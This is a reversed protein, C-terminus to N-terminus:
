GQLQHHPAEQLIRVDGTKLAQHSVDSPSWATLSATRRLKRRLKPLDAPTVLGLLSLQFVFKLTSFGPPDWLAHHSCMWFAWIRGSRFHIQLVVESWGQEDERASFLSAQSSRDIEMQVLCLILCHSYAPCRYSGGKLAVNQPLSKGSALKIIHQSFIKMTVTSTKRQLTKM